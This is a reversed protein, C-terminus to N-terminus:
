AKLEDVLEDILFSAAELREEAHYLGIAMFNAVLTAILLSSALIWRLVDVSSMEDANIAGFDSALVTSLLLSFSAIGFLLNRRLRVVGRLRDIYKGILRTEGLLRKNEDFLEAEAWELVCKYQLIFLKGVDGAIVSGWEKSLKSSRRFASVVVKWLHHSSIVIISFSFLLLYALAFANPDDRFFVVIVITIVFALSVLICKVGIFDRLRKAFVESHMKRSLLAKVKVMAEEDFNIM